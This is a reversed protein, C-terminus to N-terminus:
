GLTEPFDDSGWEAPGCYLPEIGVLTPLPECDQDRHTQCVLPAVLNTDATDTERETM